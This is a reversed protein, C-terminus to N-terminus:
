LIRLYFLDYFKATPSIDAAMKFFGSAFPLACRAKEKERLLKLDATQRYSEVM